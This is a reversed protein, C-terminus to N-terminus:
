NGGSLICNSKLKLRDKELRLDVEYETNQKKIEHLNWALNFDPRNEINIVVNINNGSGETSWTGTLTDSNSTLTIDGNAYFQITYETYNDELDQDNREFTDIYWGTCATLIESLDVSTCNDCDDDNFDNDDDEDCDDKVDELIKELSDLDSVSIETGDFLIVTIPFKISVIDEEDLDDIFEYLEKDNQISLTNIVENLANFVSISVPYKLDACEIDSDMQNEGSCGAVYSQLENSNSILIESYDSLTITIPFTIELTDQDDEFADFVREIEEFDSASDIQIEIGNATVTVPLEVTLCSANDIINDYSGDQTATNWLLNAVASNQRLTEQEPGEILVFEEKRCSSISLVLTILSIFAIRKNFNNMAKPKLATTKYNFLRLVIIGSFFYFNTKIVKISDFKWGMQFFIEM